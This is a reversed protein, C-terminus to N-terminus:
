IRLLLFLFIVRKAFLHKKQLFHSVPLIVSCLGSEGRSGFWCFCALKLFPFSCPVVRRLCSCFLIGGRRVGAVDNSRASQKGFAPNRFGVSPIGCVSSDQCCASHNSKCIEGGAIWRSPSCDTGAEKKFFETYIFQCLLEANGSSGNCSMKLRHMDALIDIIEWIENM